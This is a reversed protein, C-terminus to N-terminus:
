APTAAPASVGWIQRISTQDAASLQSFSGPTAQQSMIAILADVQQSTISVTGQGNAATWHEILNGHIGVAQYGGLVIQDDTGLQHVTLTHNVFGFPTAPDSTAKKMAQSHTRFSAAKPAKLAAAPAM